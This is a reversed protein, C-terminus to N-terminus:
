PVRQHERTSEPARQHDREKTAVSAGARLLAACMEGDGSMAARHLPTPGRGALRCSAAGRVAAAAAAAAAAGGGVLRTATECLADLQASNGARSLDVLSAAPAAALLAAALSPDAFTAEVLSLSSSGGGLFASPEIPAPPRV